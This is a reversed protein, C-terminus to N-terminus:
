HCKIEKVLNNLPEWCRSSFMQQNHEIDSQCQDLWSASATQNISAITQKIKFWRQTNDIVTDYSNDIIKDFVRYGMNRLEDLSGHAGVMVFPQAFKIPKFTKETLFVGQSQDVDFHTEFILHCYSLQYLELNVKTHRNHESETLNDCCHPTAKLFDNVAMRWGPTIDLELPNDSEQGIEEEITNYSWLSNQLLGQQYLDAMASARWWKHIRNLATFQYPRDGACFLQMPQSRNVHRFFFEHDPFYVFNELHRAQTNASIFTYCNKPLSHQQVLSDLRYKIIAPNDGEHYYFLVKIAGCSIKELTSRPIIDFYDLELDFWGLGVPYWALLPAHNVNCKNYNISARDLYMLLRCPVTRPWATDQNHEQFVLNARDLQDFAFAIV